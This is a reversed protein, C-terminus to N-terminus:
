PARFGCAASRPGDFGRPAQTPKPVRPSLPGREAGTLSCFNPNAGPGQVPGPKQAVLCLNGLPLWLRVRGFALRKLWALAVRKATPRMPLLQALYQLSYRNRVIGVRRVEYGQVAFLRSMTAPSYLYTHE